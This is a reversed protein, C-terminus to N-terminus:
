FARLRALRDQAGGEAIASRARGIGDEIREVSWPTFDVYDSVPQGKPDSRPNSEHKPGSEHGWYNCEADVEVRHGYEELVAAGYAENDEINNYRLVARDSEVGETYYGDRNGTITCRTVEMSGHEHNIGPGDNSDIYCDTIRALEDPDEVEPILTAIGAGGNETIVTGEITSGPVPSFQVPGGNGGVVCNEIVTPARFGTVVANGDNERIECDRVTLGDIDTARIGEGDNQRIVSDVCTLNSSDRGGIGIASQEVTVSRITLDVGFGGWIGQEFNRVTLNQVTSSRGETPVFVGMGNGDGELLYGNGDLTVGEARIEICPGDGESTIDNRLEYEGPEDITTCGEIGGPAAQSVNPILGAVAGVSGIAGFKIASRRTAWRRDTM